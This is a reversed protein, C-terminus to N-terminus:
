RKTLLAAPSLKSALTQREAANLRVRPRVPGFLEEATWDAHMLGDDGSHDKQELLYHGLEHALTRGLATAVLQDVRMQSLLNLMARPAVREVGAVANAYSLHIEPQPQDDQFTVWGVAVDAGLELGLDHDIVVRLRDERDPMPPVTGDQSEMTWTIRVGAGRWIADAEEFAWKIARPPIDPSAQVSISITPLAAALAIAALM